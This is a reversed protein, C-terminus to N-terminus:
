TGIETVYIVECESQLIGLAKNLRQLGLVLEFQGFISAFDLVMETQVENTVVVPSKAELGLFEDLSEDVTIFTEESGLWFMGSRGNLLSIM